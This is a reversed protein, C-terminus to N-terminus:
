QFPIDVTSDKLNLVLSSPPHSPIWHDLFTNIYVGNEVQWRHGVNIIDRGKIIGRLGWSPNSGKGVQMLCLNLFYKTKYIRAILLDHDQLIRWTQKALLAH